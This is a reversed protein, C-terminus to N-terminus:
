QATHQKTILSRFPPSGVMAEESLFYGGNEQHYGIFLVM